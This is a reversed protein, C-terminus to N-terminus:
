KYDCQKHWSLYQYIMTNSETFPIALINYFYLEM